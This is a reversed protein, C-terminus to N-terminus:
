KKVEKITTKVSSFITIKERKFEIKCGKGTINNVKNFNANCKSKSLFVGSKLFYTGSPSFANFNKGKLRVNKLIVRNKDRLFEASDAEIEVKETLFVKLKPKILKITNKNLFTATPARLIWRNKGSSKLVFEEITQKRHKPIKVKEPPAERRSLFVVLPLVSLFILLVAIQFFKNRM